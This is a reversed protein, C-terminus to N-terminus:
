EHITTTGIGNDIILTLKAGPDTRPVCNSEGIGTDCELAIPLNDPLYVDISGVGNDITLTRPKDLTLERLDITMSGVGNSFTDPLDAADRVTYTVSGAHNKTNDESAAMAWIFSIGVIVAASVAVTAILGEHSKKKPAPAPAPDPLDWAEPVTGLPDWSPPTTRGPPFPYSEVPTFASMDPGPAADPVPAALLGAPPIPQRQHLGYWAVAALIFIVVTSLTQKEGFLPGFGATAAFLIILGVALSSESKPGDAKGFLDQVPATAKGYLPMCMWALAYLAIGGGLVLATVVFAVRVLVPDIQYRVGIGECVGAIMANGGQNSPIRPPRTDWMQNLTATNMGIDHRVALYAVMPSRGSKQVEPNVGIRVPRLRAFILPM